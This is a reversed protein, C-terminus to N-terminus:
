FNKCSTKVETDNKKSSSSSLKCIELRLYTSRTTQKEPALHLVFREATPLNGWLGETAACYSM